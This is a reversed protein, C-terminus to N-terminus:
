SRAYRYEGDLFEGFVPNFLQVREVGDLAQVSPM